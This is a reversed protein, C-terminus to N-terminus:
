EQLRLASYKTSTYPDSSAQQDHTGGLVHLTRLGRRDRQGGDPGGGYTRSRKRTLGLGLIRLEVCVLLMVGRASVVRVAGPGSRTLRGLRGTKGSRGCGAFVLDAIFFPVVGLSELRWTWQPQSSNWETSSSTRQTSALPTSRYLITECHKSSGHIM